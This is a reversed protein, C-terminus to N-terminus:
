ILKQNTLKAILGAFKVLNNELAGYPDRLSQAVNSHGALLVVAPYESLFSATLHQFDCKYNNPNTRNGRMELDVTDVSFGARIFHRYLASGVYGLGGIVLLRRGAQPTDITGASM